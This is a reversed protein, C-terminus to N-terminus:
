QQRDEPAPAGGPASQPQAAAQGVNASSQPDTAWNELQAAWQPAMAPHHQQPSALAAAALPRPM